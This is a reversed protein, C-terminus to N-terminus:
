EHAFDRNKPKGNQPDTIRRRPAAPAPLGARSRPRCSFLGINSALGPRHLHGVVRRKCLPVHNRSDQRGWAEDECVWKKRFNVQSLGLSVDRVWQQALWYDAAVKGSELQLSASM